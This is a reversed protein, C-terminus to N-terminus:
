NACNWKTTTASNRRHSIRLMHSVLQASMEREKKTIKAESHIGKFDVERIEDDWRLTQIMLLKVCTRLIALRTRTRLTIKVIATKDTDELTQHLLLYSKPTKS